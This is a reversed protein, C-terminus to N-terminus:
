SDNPPFLTATVSPRRTIQSAAKKDSAAKDDHEVFETGYTSFGGSFAPSVSTLKGWLPFNESCGRPHGRASKSGLDTTIM